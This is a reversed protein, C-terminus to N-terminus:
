LTFHACKVQVSGSRKSRMNGTQLTQWKRVPALRFPTSISPLWIVPIFRRTAVSFFALSLFQLKLPAVKAPVSRSTVFRETESDNLLKAHRRTNKVKINKHFLVTVQGATVELLRVQPARVHLPGNKLLHQCWQVHGLTDSLRKHEGRWLAAKIAFRIVTM